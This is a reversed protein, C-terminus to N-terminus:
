LNNTEESDKKVWLLLTKELLSILRRLISWLRSMKTPKMILLVQILQALEWVEEVVEDEEVVDEAQDSDVYVLLDQLDKEEEHLGELPTEEM